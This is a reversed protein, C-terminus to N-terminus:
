EGVQTLLLRAVVEDGLMEGTEAFGFGAYLKRAVANDPEYSIGIERCNPAVEAKMRALLLAFAAKGYGKGQQNHDIMVRSIFAKEGKTQEFNHMTFGVMEEDNYVALPVNNWVKGEEDHFTFQSEAISYVNSAVFHEQDPRVKLKIAQKWNQHTIPELHISM